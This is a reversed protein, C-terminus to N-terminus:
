YKKHSTKADVPINSLSKMKGVNWQVEINNQQQTLALHFCKFVQLLDGISSSLFRKLMSHGSKARSSTVHGLHLFQGLRLLINKWENLWTTEVYQLAPHDAFKLCLTRVEYCISNWVKFPNVNSV